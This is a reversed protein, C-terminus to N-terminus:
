RRGKKGKSGGKKGGEKKDKASGKKKGTKKGEIKAKTKSMIKLSCKSLKTPQVPGDRAKEEAAREKARQKEKEAKRVLAAAPMEDIEEDGDEDHEPESDSGVKIPAVTVISTLGSGGNFIQVHPERVPGEEVAADSDTDYQELNLQERQVLRRQVFFIVIPSHIVVVSM